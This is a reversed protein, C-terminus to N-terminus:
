SSRRSRWRGADTAAEPSASARAVRVMRVYRALADSDLETGGCTRDIARAKAVWPHVSVTDDGDDDAPASSAPM